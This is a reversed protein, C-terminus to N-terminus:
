KHKKILGNLIWSLTPMLSGFIIVERYVIWIYEWDRYDQNIHYFLPSKVAVFFLSGYGFINLIACLRSLFNQLNIVYKEKESPKKAPHFHTILPKWTSEEVGRYNVDATIECTNWKEDIQNKHYPGTENEGKKLYVIEPFDKERRGTKKARAEERMEGWRNLLYMGNIIWYLPNLSFLIGPIWWWRNRQLMFIGSIGSVIGHLCFFQMIGDNKNDILSKFAIAATVFGIFSCLGQFYGWKFPRKDPNKNAWKEGLILSVPCAFILSLTFFLAPIENSNM